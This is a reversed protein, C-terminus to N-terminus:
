KARDNVIINKTYSVKKATSMNAVRSNFLVEIRGFAHQSSTVHRTKAWIQPLKLFQHVYMLSICVSSCIFLNPKPKGTTPFHHWVFTIHCWQVNANVIESRRIVIHVTVGKYKMCQVYMLLSCSQMSVPVRHEIHRNGESSHPLLLVRATSICMRGNPTVAIGCALRRQSAAARGARAMWMNLLGSTLSAPPMRALWTCMLTWSPPTSRSVTRLCCQFLLALTTQWAVMFM